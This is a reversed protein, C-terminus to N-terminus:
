VRRLNLSRRGQADSVVGLFPHQQNLAAAQEMWRDPCLKLGVFDALMDWFQAKAVRAAIICAVHGPLRRDGRCLAVLCKRAGNMALLASLCVVMWLKPHVQASPCRALWVHDCRLAAPSVLGALGRHLEGIVAVAM